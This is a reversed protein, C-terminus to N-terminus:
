STRPIEAESRNDVASPLLVAQNETPTLEIEPPSVEEEPLSARLLENPAIRWEPSGAARLLEGSPSAPASAGRLLTRSEKERELQIELLQLTERAVTRLQKAAPHPIQVYAVKRVPVLARTDVLRHATRLIEEQLEIIGYRPQNFLWAPLILLQYLRDRDRESLIRHFNATNLQPLLQRMALLSTACVQNDIAESQLQHILVETYESIRAVPAFDLRFRIRELCDQAAQRVTQATPTAAEGAALAYLVGLCQVDGIQQLAAIAALRLALDCDRHVYNLLHYLQRHQAPALLACDAPTLSNLLRILIQKSKRHLAGPLNFIQVVELLAGISHKDENLVIAEVAARERATPISTLPSLALMLTGALGAVKLPWPAMEHVVSILLAIWILAGPGVLLLARTRRNTHESVIIHTLLQLSRADNQALISETEARQREPLLTLLKAIKSARSEPDLAEPLPPDVKFAMTMM